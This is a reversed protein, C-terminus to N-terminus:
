SRAVWPKKSEEFEDAIEQPLKTCLSVIIIMVSSAIFGPIIEYIAFIGGNSKMYFWFLDVVGGVIMGAIAGQVTTRKWFLAFLILPGFAAGFGGWACSVLAFVSSNADLAIVLAIASVILVTFRSVWVIETGDTRKKFLLAYLDRSASSATVLLQSSATSMIAALIATLLIGTIVKPFMKDILIMYITEGDALNPLYARGIVGIAVAAALTIIVWIMAIVRSKRIMDPSQIAMFRCLIHPQGFYGLGWGLASALLMTNVAGGDTTPFFGLSEPTLAALRTATEGVGGIEMLAMFPVIMLAFFMIGGQIADTWCVAAFGGLATYSVIILAGIILGTTYNLGFVTSFLKASASFQSSTYILFFVVIFIASLIRLIHKSDKFRNELFDPITISNGSVETYKRLRKAVFLWNLYTGIILGVATWIAESTGKYVLYATGPLGILLWGSMDSAQASLATLWSGLNRDGLIYEELNSNKSYHKLGIAVMLGLYIIFVIAITIM